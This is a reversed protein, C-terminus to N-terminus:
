TATANPSSGAPSSPWSPRTPRPRSSPTSARYCPSSPTPLNWPDAEEPQRITRVESGPCNALVRPSASTDNQETVRRRIHSVLVLTHQDAECDGLLVDIFM